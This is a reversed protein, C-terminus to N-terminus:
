WSSIKLKGIFCGSPGAGSDCHVVTSNEESFCKLFLRPQQDFILDKLKLSHSVMIGVVTIVM